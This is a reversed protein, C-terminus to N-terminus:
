AGEDKQTVLTERMRFAVHVGSFLTLAAVVQIAVRMGLLDAIFRVDALGRAGVNYRFRSLMAPTLDFADLIEYKLNKRQLAEVFAFTAAGFGCGADLVRLGARLLGSAALCARMGQPYRFSSILFGYSDIRNTYIEQIESQSLPMTEQDM